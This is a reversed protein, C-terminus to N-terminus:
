LKAYKSYRQNTTKDQVINITQVWVLASLALSFPISVMIVFSLTMTFYLNAKNILEDTANPSSFYPTFVLFGKTRNLGLLDYSEFHLDYATFRPSALSCV